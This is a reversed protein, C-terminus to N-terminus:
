APRVVKGSVADRIETPRSLGGLPSHLIYDVSNGFVRQIALPKRLAPHNSINASTSVLAGGFARCLGQVVPHDSVRVALTDHQGRLGASVHKAAPILWTVPGPWSDMLRQKMDADLVQLYPELQALEAAVLILGKSASRQKLHLLRAIADSNDPDCGLGYVSETPYAVIGGNKLVHSASRLRWGSVGSNCVLSKRSKPTVPWSKKQM